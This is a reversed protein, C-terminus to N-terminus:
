VAVEADLAASRLAACDDAVRWSPAGTLAGRLGRLFFSTSGLAGGAGSFSFFGRLGRAEAPVVVVVAERLLTLVSFSGGAATMECVKSGVFSRLVDLSTCGTGNAESELGTTNCSAALVVWLPKEFWLAVIM